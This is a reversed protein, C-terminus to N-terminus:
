MPLRYYHTQVGFLEATRPVAKCNGTSANYMLSIASLNTPFVRRYASSVERLKEDDLKASITVTNFLSRLFQFLPCSFPKYTEIRRFGFNYENTVNKM